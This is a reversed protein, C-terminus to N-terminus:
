AGGSIGGARGAGLLRERRADLDNYEERWARVRETPLRDFKHAREGFLTAQVDNLDLGQSALQETHEVTFPPRGDAGQWFPAAAELAGLYNALVDDEPAQVALAAAIRPSLAPEVETRVKQFRGSWLWTVVDDDERRGGTACIELITDLEAPTIGPKLQLEVVGDRFFPYFTYRQLDEEQAYPLEFGEPTRSNGPGFQLTLAGFEKLFSRTATVVHELAEGRSPHRPPYRQAFHLARRFTKLWELLAYLKTSLRTKGEDTLEQKAGYTEIYAEVARVEHSLAAM